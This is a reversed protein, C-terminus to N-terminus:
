RRLRRRMQHRDGVRQAQQLPQVPAPVIPRHGVRDTLQEGVRARVDAEDQPGGAFLHQGVHEVDGLQRPLVLQAAANREAAEDVFQARRRVVFGGLRRNEFLAAVADAQHGDVLGLAELERDDDERVQGAAHAPVVRAAIEIRRAPQARHLDAAPRRVLQVLVFGLLHRAILGFANAQGVDRRRPRAIQQDDGRKAVLGHSPPHSLGSLRASYGGIADRRTDVRPGFHGANLDFSETSSRGLM